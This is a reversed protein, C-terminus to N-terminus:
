ASIAQLPTKPAPAAAVGIGTAFGRKVLLGHFDTLSQGVTARITSSRRAVRFSVELWAKRYRRYLEREEEIQTSLKDPGSTANM